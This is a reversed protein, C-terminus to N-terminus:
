REYFNRTIIENQWEPSLSTFKASFGAVRVVLDPYKEPNKQADLLTEKSTCNLQMSQMSSKTSARLIAECIDLDMKSSPLILNVVSNGGM